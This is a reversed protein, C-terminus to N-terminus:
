PKNELGLAARVEIRPCSAGCPGALLKEGCAECVPDGDGHFVHEELRQFVAEIDVMDKRHAARLASKRLNEAMIHVERENLGEDGLGCVERVVEAALKITRGREQSLERKLDRIEEDRARRRAREISWGRAMILGVHEEALAGGHTPSRESYITYLANFVVCYYPLDEESPIRLQGYKYKRPKPDSM